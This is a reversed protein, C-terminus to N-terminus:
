QLKQRGRLPEFWDERGTDLIALGWGVDFSARSVGLENKAVSWLEEKTALKPQNNEMFQWLWARCRDREENAKRSLEDKRSM